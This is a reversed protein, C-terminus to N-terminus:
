SLSESKEKRFLVGAYWASALCAFSSILVRNEEDPEAGNLMFAVIVGAAITWPVGSWLRMRDALINLVIFAVSLGAGWLAQVPLFPIYFLNIGTLLAVAGYMVSMRM